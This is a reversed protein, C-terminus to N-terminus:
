PAHAGGQAAAGGRGPACPVACLLASRAGARGSITLQLLRELPMALLQALDYPHAAGPFALALAL